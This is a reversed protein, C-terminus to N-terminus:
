GNEKQYKLTTKAKRSKREESGRGDNPVVSTLCARSLDNDFHGVGLRSSM